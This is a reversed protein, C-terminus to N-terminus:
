EISSSCAVCGATVLCSCGHWHHPSRSIRDVIGLVLVLRFALCPAAPKQFNIKRPNNKAQLTHYPLARLSSFSHCHFLRCLFSYTHKCLSSSAAFLVAASLAFSFSCSFFVFLFFLFCCVPSHLFTCLYQVSGTLSSTSPQSLTPPSPRRAACRPTEGPLTQLPPPPPSLPRAPRPACHRRTAPPTSTTLRPARSRRWSRRRLRLSPWGARAREAGSGSSRSSSCRTAGSGM